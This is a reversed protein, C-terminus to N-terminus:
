DNRLASMPDVSAAHRAPLWTALLALALLLLAVTAYIAPSGPDVGFLMSKLLSSAAYGAALGPLVGALTLRVGESLIQRLLRPRQAGLAMRIGIERTRGAVSHWIVGALGVIALLLAVGAFAAVLVSYARRLWMSQSLKQSMTTVQFMAVNPDLRRLLVRSPETLSAPDQATRLVMTLAGIPVQGHTAYVTSRALQDLGDDKVDRLVGVVTMWRPEGHTRLRKGLAAGDPWKRRALTESVLVATSTSTDDEAGLLRGERLSFAMTELYGPTVIRMLIPDRAVAPKSGDGEVELFSSWNTGLPTSSTGGAVTVGPLRRSEEVLQRIFAARREPAAYARAPLEVRYTLLGDARFGPDVRRINLFSQLLLGASVLLMAALAMEAKVLANLQWKSGRSMTSRPAAAATGHLVGLVDARSAALAPWLGAFVATAVTVLLACIAFRSDVDFQMQRPLDAPMLALLGRLMLSALLAGAAGGLASILVSEALLQRALRWRSAGLAARVGMERSRSMGRVLLLGAVDLCAILLVIVVAGSLLRASLRFDGAVRDGLPAVAPTTVDRQQHSAGAPDQHVRLLDARAQELSVGDKLRGVGSLYWSGEQAPNLQLPLWLASRAPFPLDPPLVGIVAYPVADLLVQSELVDTRGGYLRQWLDHGLMVVHPGGPRDEDATFARGLIPQLRLVRPLDWTVAHGEVRESQQGTSLNFGRGHVAAMSDFTRNQARWDLFDPPSMKVHPMNLREASEDLEVLREAQALPLPRLFLEDLLSFIATAGAIGLAVIGITVLSLAPQRALTRAALRLDRFLSGVFSSISM